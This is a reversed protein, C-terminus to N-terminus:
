KTKSKDISLAQMESVAMDHEALAIGNEGQKKTMRAWYKSLTENYRDALVKAQSEIKLRNQEERAKDAAQAKLGESKLEAMFQERKQKKTAM